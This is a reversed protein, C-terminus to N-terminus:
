GGPVDKWHRSIVRRIEHVLVSLDVADPTGIFDTVSHRRGPISVEVTAMEGDAVGQHRPDPPVQWFSSRNLAALLLDVEHSNLRITETRRPGNGDLNWTLSMLGKGGAGVGIKAVTAPFPGLSIRATLVLRATKMGPPLLTGRPRELARLVSPKQCDFGHIEDLCITARTEVDTLDRGADLSAVSVKVAPLSLDAKSHWPDCAEQMIQNDHGHAACWGRSPCNQAVTVPDANPNAACWASHDEPQYQSQAPARLPWAMMAVLAILVVLPKLM